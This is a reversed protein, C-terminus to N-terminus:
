KIIAVKGTYKEGEPSIILYIYVGRGVKEGNQNTLDWKIKNEGTPVRLNVVEEARLTYIIINSENAVQSLVLEQNSRCPNPYVVPFTEEESAIANSPSLDETLWDYIRQMVEASNNSASEGLPIAELPIAEFPFAFHWRCKANHKKAFAMSELFTKHTDGPLGLIMYIQLDINASKLMVLAKEVEELTEGKGIMDFVKPSGSEVGLFGSNLGTLCLEQFSEETLRDARIGGELCLKINLGRERIMHCIEIVRTPRMVFNDDQFSVRRLRYKSYANEIEAVVRQASFCRWRRNSLTKSLCFSCNYPCGRSTAITYTDRYYIFGYKAVLDILDFNLMPLSDLNKIMPRKKNVIVEGNQRYALGAVDDYSGSDIADILEAFTREGEGFILFDIENNESLMREPFMSPSAGGVVIKSDTQTRLQHILKRVEGFAFYSMISIGIVEPNLELLAKDLRKYADQKRFNMDVIRVSHELEGLYSGLSVPALNIQDDYPTMPDILLVRM